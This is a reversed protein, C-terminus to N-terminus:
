RWHESEDRTFKEQSLTTLMSFFCYPLFWGAYNPIIRAWDESLRGRPEVFPESRGASAGSAATNPKDRAIEWGCAM